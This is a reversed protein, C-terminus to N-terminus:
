LKTLWIGGCVIKKRKLFLPMETELEDKYKLEMFSNFYTIQFGKTYSLMGQLLYLENWSRKQEVIWKEPYEFPYFIDHIHIHVGSAILPLIKLYIHNVDSGSKCVHSTDILLFDGARLHSFIYPETEQIKKEIITVRDDDRLLGRLRETNPDIFTFNIESNFFQENTDLLLASSFGSGIEIINAPKMKRMMCYLGIADSYSFFDNNYYYRYGKNKQEDEFPLEAYYPKFSQLVAHQKQENFDIAPFKKDELAEDRKFSLFEDTNVLPSYYHGPDFSSYKEFDHIRQQLGRVYPFQQLM